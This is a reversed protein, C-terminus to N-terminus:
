SSEEVPVQISGNVAEYDAIHRKILVAIEKNASRENENAIHRIKFLTQKSVRITFQPLNSPM